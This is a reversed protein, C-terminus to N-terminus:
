HKSKEDANIRAMRPKIKIAAESRQSSQPIIVKKKKKAEEEL